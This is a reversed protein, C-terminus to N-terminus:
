TARRGADQRIAGILPEADGRLLVDRMSEGGALGVRRTLLAELQAPALGAERAAALAREVEAKIRMEEDFQWAPYVWDPSGEPLVAFVEGARRRVDLAVPDIGLRQALWPGTLGPEAVKSM